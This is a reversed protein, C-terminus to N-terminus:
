FSQSEIVYSSCYFITKSRAVTEKNREADLAAWVTCSSAYVSPIEVNEQWKYHM